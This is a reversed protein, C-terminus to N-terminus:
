IRMRMLDADVDSRMRVRMLDAVADSGCGPM